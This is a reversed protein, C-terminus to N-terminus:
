AWLISFVTNGGRDKGKKACVIKAMIIIVCNNTIKERRDPLTRIL